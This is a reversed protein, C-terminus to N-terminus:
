KLVGRLRDLARHQLSKVAGESRRTLQAVERLSYGEVFRLFIVERQEPTVLALAELAVTQAPEPGDVHQDPVEGTRERGRKRLWDLSRHRAITLLWVRIPKGRERYRDIGELAELFVQGAIDEAVSPNGTQALASRFVIPHEQDFLENWAQPERRRLRELLSDERGTM